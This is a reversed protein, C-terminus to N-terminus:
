ATPPVWRWVGSIRCFRSVAPPPCTLTEKVGTSTGIARPIRAVAM